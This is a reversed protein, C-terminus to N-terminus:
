EEKGKQIKRLLEDLVEDLDKQEEALQKKRALIHDLSKKTDGKQTDSLLEVVELYHVKAM